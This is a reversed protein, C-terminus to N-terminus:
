FTLNLRATYYRLNPQTLFDASNFNGGGIANVEPDLGSYKTWTKLNRGAFTLSAGAARIESAFRSPLTVTMAVERLKTFTADEIFGAQTGMLAGLINAQDQFSSLKRDAADACNQFGGNSCRFARTNNYLKHGGRHDVLASFRFNRFLTLSPSVTLETTPFASGIFENTDGVTIECAPGGALVPQGPCNVRSILGDNNYDGFSTIPRSFYAGLPLGNRIVQTSSFGSFIQPIANGNADRGLDDLVNKTYTLNTTLDLKVADRNIANVRVSLEDGRNSVQGLNQFRSNGVGASPALVVQVLADTTIKKYHTYEVSLRDEFLGLDFGGEVESSKEPRLFQNGPGGITFGPVDVGQVSVAVPNYFFDAARFGPRQGSVGYASRLRLLSVFSLARPFFEEEGIVWSASLSPYLINTFNEGFASNRDTRLAGTVFVKDRWALQERAYYGITRVDQNVENVSFRANTGSLSNTGGLLKAGFADTRRFLEQTYQGGLSTTSRLTPKIDYTATGNLNSTYNSIVARNAARSGERLSTSLFIQEPPVTEQDFRNNVDAGLTGTFNLWSLPTFNSTVSGIFRQVQQRTNIGFIDQPIQGSTYGRSTTDTGCQSPYSRRPSCDFARGLLAASIVGLLNNDNQPLRLDGNVYGVSVAADLNKRLQSRINTRLNLQQNHNIDYVGQERKYDASLYYTAADGGGSASLGLQRRNGDRFPSANELPSTTVISDVSCLRRAQLDINCNFNTTGNTNRGVARFNAPYVNVDSSTGAETVFDYRTKGARGKKTTIQVVGNSAATGYLAAAAPGKIIEISEIEDPNIDNFRSPVQGGVGISSSSPSNDIRVGDIILLPDNGLSISNSGRIRIRSGGGITGGANVVSVGPARAALVSSFNTTAALQIQSTDISSIANGTERKRQTEGTATVIVQDLQTASVALAFDQTVTGNAPVVVTRTVPGYGIRQSVISVSGAPVGVIRYTGTQDTQAGRPTGVVRIQVGDLPRQAQRDVVRGTITGTAGQQAVAAVPLLVAAFAAAIFKVVKRM